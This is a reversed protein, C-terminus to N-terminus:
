PALVRKLFEQIKPEELSGVVLDALLDQVSVLIPRASTAISYTGDFEIEADGAKIRKIQENVQFTPQLAHPNQLEYFALECTAFQVERPVSDLGVTHGEKDLAYYRPWALGQYGDVDTRGNKRYGPWEFSYTIYESARILSQEKQEDSYSSADYGRQAWYSEAYDLSVYSNADPLGEGTEVILTV